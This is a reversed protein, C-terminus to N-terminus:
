ILCFLNMYINIKNPFWHLNVYTTDSITGHPLKVDVCLKALKVNDAFVKRLIMFLNVVVHVIVDEKM